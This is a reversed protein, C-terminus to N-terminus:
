FFPIFLLCIPNLSPSSFHSSAFEYCCTQCVYLISSAILDFFRIGSERPISLAFEDTTPINERCWSGLCIGSVKFNTANSLSLEGFPYNDILKMNHMIKDLNEEGELKAM